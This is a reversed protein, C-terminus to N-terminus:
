MLTCTNCTTDVQDQEQPVEERVFPPKIFDEEEVEKEVKVTEIRALPLVPLKFESLEGEDKKEELSILTNDAKRNFFAQIKPIVLDKIRQAEKSNAEQDDYEIRERNFFNSLKSITQKAEEVDEADEETEEDPVFIISRPQITSLEEDEEEEEAEYSSSDAPRPKLGSGPRQFVEEPADWESESGSMMPSNTITTLQKAQPRRSENVINKSSVPTDLKKILSAYNDNITESNEINAKCENLFTQLRKKGVVWNSHKNKVIKLMSKISISSSGQDNNALISDLSSRLQDDTPTVTSM